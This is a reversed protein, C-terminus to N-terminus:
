QSQRYQVFLLGWYKHMTRKNVNNLNKHNQTLLSPFLPPFPHVCALFNVNKFNGTTVGTKMFPAVFYFYFNTRQSQVNAQRELNKKVLTQEYFYKPM